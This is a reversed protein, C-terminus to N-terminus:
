TASHSVTGCRLGVGTISLWLERGNIEVPQTRGAPARRANRSGRDDEWPSFVEMTRRGVTEAAALGTIQTAAPNWSDSSGARISSCFATRSTNSSSRQAHANKPARYLRANDVAVCRTSGPNRSDLDDEDYLRAPDASVLM